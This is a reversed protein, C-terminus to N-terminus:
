VPQRTRTAAASAKDLALTAEAQRKCASQADGSLSDCQEKAVKYAGEAKAIAVDYEGQIKAKTLDTQESRIDKNAALETSAVAASADQRADAVNQEVKSPTSASNCGTLLAFNGLALLTITSTRM